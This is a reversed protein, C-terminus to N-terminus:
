ADVTNKGGYKNRLYYDFTHYRKNTDSFPFPNTERQTPRKM